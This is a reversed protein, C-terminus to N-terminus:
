QATGAVASAAAAAGPGNRAADRIGALVSDPKAQADGLDKATKAAQEAAALQQQRQIQQEREARMAQVDEDSRIITAPVGLMEATEDIAQDFDIKDLSEPNMEGVGSAIVLMRDVSSVGVARQAQALISIYEVKLDTGQLEEPPEPLLGNRLMVAFTRDILPDLLEDELRELVPGLQLLKEEHRETVERATIQRRDTNALMLFLDAYFNRDIRQQIEAIEERRAVVAPPVEYAPRFGPQGNPSDVFTVDGPLMSPQGHAKLASPATMPPDVIKDLAQLKRRHEHQLQKCDGLSDMGPSTGYIDEGEIWWRPCMVPFEEFGSETLFDSGGTSKSSNSEWWASRYPMNRADASEPIRDDNVEVVHTVPVWDETSGERWRDRTSKSVNDIGFQTVLQDVTMDFQRYFANVRGDPGNAISYSGIPINMCRIVSEIDEFVFMAGTGYVGLTEYMAPLAKYANSQAFVAEMLRQVQHLWTKVPGFERLAIEQTSLKFWPRAPSTLGGMLGASLTRSALTPTSDIIKENFKGGHNRQRGTVLFRGRRPLIYQNTEQWHPMWSEREKKMASHRREM